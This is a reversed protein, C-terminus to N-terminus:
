FNQLAKPLTSINLMRADDKYLNVCM